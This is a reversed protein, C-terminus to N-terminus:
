NEHKKLIQVLERDAHILYWLVGNKTIKIKNHINNSTSAQSNVCCGNRGRIAFVVYEYRMV